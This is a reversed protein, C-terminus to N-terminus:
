DYYEESDASWICNLIKTKNEDINIQYKVCGMQNNTSYFITDGINGNQLYNDIEDYADM